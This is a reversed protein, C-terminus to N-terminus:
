PVVTVTVVDTARLGEDDTVELELTWVGVGSPNGALQTTLAPHPQPGALLRGSDDASGEPAEAVTWTYSVIEGGGPDFSSSGDLTLPQGVRVTLPPGAEAVPPVPQSLGCAVLLLAAAPLVALLARGSSRSSWSM